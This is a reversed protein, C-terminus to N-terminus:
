NGIALYYLKNFASTGSTIVTFGGLGLSGATVNITKDNTSATEGTILVTFVATSFASIFGIAQGNAITGPAADFVGWKLLIGGPIWAQGTPLGIPFDRMIPWNGAINRWIPWANTNGDSTISQSFFVANAGDLAPPAENYLHVHKHHGDRSGSSEFSYHDVDIISDISNTNTRMKPQDDSPNNPASPIGNNYTFTPM